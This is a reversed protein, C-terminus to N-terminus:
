AQTAKDATIASAVTRAAATGLVSLEFVCYKMVKYSSRM